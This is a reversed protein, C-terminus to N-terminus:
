QILSLERALAVAQTRNKVGLKGFINNLHWKVTGVTIFLRDSIDKNSCGSAVLALLELEREGVPEILPQTSKQPAPQRQSHTQILPDIFDPAAARINVLINQLRDANEMLDFRRGQPVVVKLVARLKNEAIVTQGLLNCACAQLVRIQTLYNTWDSGELRHEFHDLIKLARQPEGAALCIRAMMVWLTDFPLDDAAPGPLAYHELWKKALDPSGLRGYMEAEMAAAYHAMVPIGKKEAHSRLNRTRLFAQDHQGHYFLIQILISEAPSALIEYLGLQRILNLARSLTTVATDFDGRMYQLVGLAIMPIGALQMPSGDPQSYRQVAEATLQVAAPLEGCDAMLFVLNNLIPLAITPQSFKEALSFGQRYYQMAEYAQGQSRLYKGWGLLALPRFLSDDERILKLAEELSLYDDPKSTAMAKWANTALVLGRVDDSLDAPLLPEFRSLWTLGDGIRGSYCLLWCRIVALEPDKIAIEEPIKETWRLATAIQGAQVMPRVALRLYQAATVYVKGALAYRVAEIYQGCQAYWASALRQVANQEEETLESRLYEAILHHYRYWERRDDLPILFLNANDIQDLLSRSNECDTVAACLAPNFRDLVAIRSLFSRMEPTLNALVEDVLYDIIFHHTGQFSQIFADMDEATRLSLGALQLGVGWGETRENLAEIQSATLKRGVSAEMLEMTEIANFALDRARIEVMQQRARLRSIPLPPDERSIIVLFVGPPQHAVWFNLLEHIVPQQILHFDDIVMCFSIKRLSVENVLAAMLHPLSPDAAGNIAGLFGSGLDPIVQQLAGSFYQFFRVPDNEEPELSLWVKPMSVSQLWGAVLTSKGYGAPACVLGLRRQQDM